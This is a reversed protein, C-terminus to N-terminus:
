ELRQVTEFWEPGSGDEKDCEGTFLLLLLLLLLLDVAILLLLVIWGDM